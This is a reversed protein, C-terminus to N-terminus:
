QVAAGEGPDAAENVRVLLEAIAQETMRLVGHQEIIMGAQIRQDLWDTIFAPAYGGTSFEGGFAIMESYAELYAERSTDPYSKTYLWFQLDYILVSRDDAHLSFHGKAEVIRTCISRIKGEIDDVETVRACLEALLASFRGSAVKELSEHKDEESTDYGESSELGRIFSEFSNALLTIEYDAEQDVHIVAPEGDRGCARYDLMVVDHGASPCDCIVVGIDPYGWDEIMFLSGDSGCLSYPKDRGIGMIASIEIHDEAWSTAEDTAFATNVPIGGNQQKMLEIYFGPLKYGLEAEVSTILEDSPPESIYEERAYASDEWFASLDLPMLASREKRSQREAARKSRYLFHRAEADQPNLRNAQGFAEAAEAYDKMYFLSFGVRYHWLADQEGEAALERLQTLGEEYCGLNNLARALYSRIEYNRNEPPIATITDVISQFENDEHWKKLQIILDQEM